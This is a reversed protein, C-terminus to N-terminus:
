VARSGLVVVAVFVRIRSLNSLGLIERSYFIKQAIGIVELCLAMSVMIM